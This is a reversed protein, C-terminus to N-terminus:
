TKAKRGHEALQTDREEPRHLDFWYLISAVKAILQSPRAAIGHSAGPLRVMATPIQRLKLAQYFQETESIPTRYDQEGTLLMTPTSINGVYTLPSRRRYEDPKEWPMASFWYKTFFRSYDATLVFSEWNIVPKAVVAARFRNTKGVIWATLTGGGSGGTVYLQDEDIYGQDVLADVGSMLDDYDESPYNHHILNAFEQGYSTSGRPNIYLVVYGAAAYLQIEAAFRPGYNAFPGGHIELLLPYKEDPNFGPPYAVWGQIERGDHRSKFNIEELQAMNRFPLLDRNLSTLQDPTGSRIVALEAPHLGNTRTYTVTGNRSVDFDAGDYPRGLSLGGADAALTKESGGLRKIAVKTSGHDDYTYAISKSDALWKFQSVSRDEVTDVLTTEGSELDLLHLRVNQYGLHKDDFGLYALSEGNPALQPEFDPGFRSTVQTIERSSLEVSYIESNGPELEHDAHRNASFYIASGDRNWSLTGSHDFEGNTLQRPTGGDRSMVFIQTHGQKLYGRGDARYTARDIFVPGEAWEAGEPKGPLKVPLPKEEPVFMSFALSSGDPSWELSAPPKPLHSIQLFQGNDLWLLHIQASGSRDSVFALVKGDPSLRPSRDSFNGSTLPRNNDGDSDIRWLNSRGQDAMKDMFNRVYFITDGDRSFQPDDAYELSFVDDYDFKPTETTAFASASLLLASFIRLFHYM